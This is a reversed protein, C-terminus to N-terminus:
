RAREWEAQIDATTLEVFSRVVQEHMRDLLENASTLTRNPPAARGVAVLQLNQMESTQFGAGSQFYIRGLPQGEDGRVVFRQTIAVEEPPGLGDPRIDRWNTFARATLTAIGDPAPIQNVYTLECQIPILSGLNGEKLFRAVREAESFFEDRMMPYRPYEATEETKRWNRVLRDSQFQILQQGTEDVFWLRPIQGPAFFPLQRNLQPLLPGFVEVLPPVPPHYEIEPFRDRFIERLPGIHHFAVGGAARVATRM